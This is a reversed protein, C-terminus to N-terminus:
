DDYHIYKGIDIHGDGTAPIHVQWTGVKVNDTYKSGNLYYELNPEILLRYRKTAIEFWEYNAMTYDYSDLLFEALAMQHYMRFVVLNRENVTARAVMLDMATYKEHTAQDKIPHWRSILGAFFAQAKQEDTGDTPISATSYDDATIPAFTTSDEKQYPYYAYYTNGEAHVIPDVASRVWTGDADLTYELNAATVEGTSNVVFVGIKDGETLQMTYNTADTSRTITGEGMPTMGAEIVQLTLPAPTTGDNSVAAREDDSSCAGLAAGALLAASIYLLNKRM